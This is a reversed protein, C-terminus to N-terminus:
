QRHVAQARSILYGRIASAEQQNLVAAFSIMGKEKLNGGLVVDNFPKDQSLYWSYRLDPNLGTSVARDGHCALCYSNYLEQGQAIKDPSVAATPAVIPSLSPPPKPPLAATGGLKYVLLRDLIPIRGDQNVLGCVDSFDGGCGAMVAIYQEGGVEYTIPGAMPMSQADTRWLREGTDARYANFHGDAEGQFLLNGATTLVGGAPRNYPIRWREKQTVPDWALLYAKHPPALSYDGGTMLTATNWGVNSPRYGRVMDFVQATEQTPIYVLGTLPSYSMPMWSHAGRTSPWGLFPKGTQDYRAAANEVPRGTTMDIHDAWNTPVFNKASLLEGTQRDLVYFFGNKPAQMIVNRQRGGIELTALIFPQTATFDWDDGPNV